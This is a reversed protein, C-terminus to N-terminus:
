WHKNLCNNDKLRILDAILKGEVLCSSNDKSYQKSPCYKCIWKREAILGLSAQNTVTM